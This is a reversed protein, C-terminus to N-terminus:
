RPWLTVDLNTVYVFVSDISADLSEAGRFPQGDKEYLGSRPQGSAPIGQSGLASLRIRLYRGKSYFRIQLVSM